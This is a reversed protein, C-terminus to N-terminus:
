LNVRGTIDKPQAPTDQDKDYLPAYKGDPVDSLVFGNAKRAAIINDSLATAIANSVLNLLMSSSNVVKCDVTVDASRQFLIKNDKTSKLIYEIDVEITNTVVIKQWKKIVTFLVADATFVNNFPKLSGDIFLEADEASESQLLEQALIPSFVYYGREVLPHFLSAYVAEKAEVKNTKNIPPMVLISLPKQAYLEKYVESKKAFNNTLGCSSFLLLLSLIPALSYALKNYHTRM